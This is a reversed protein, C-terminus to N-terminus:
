RPPLVFSLPAQRLRQWLAARLVRKDGVSVGRARMAMRLSLWFSVGLNLAGILFIGAACAGLTAAPVADWGLSTVAATWQATSLTVHRVDLPLGLFGLVAPMVGLMLGLSANSALGNVHRRGWQAWRQARARGLRAVIGPHTAIAGQLEQFCFANEAWGGVLSSAFLLVGTFAAYLPALGLATVSDLVHHAAGEGILPRGLVWWCVGQLAITAPVVLGLNGLVAAVQSRTLAAIEDVFADSAARSGHGHSDQVQALRSTLAPATMAPQKTALTWGMLYIGLFSVAYMLGVAVGSWFPALALALIAFKAVATFAVVVGGGGAQRLLSRYEGRDRAVYHEGTVAHREAFKRALLRRHEALCNRLSRQRRVAEALQSLMLALDQAPRNSLVLGLLTELRDLRLHIQDLDQLLAISVGHLRLHEKAQDAAERCLQIVARLHNAAQRRGPGDIRPLALLGDLAEPLREFAGRGAAGSPMRARLAPSLAMACLAQALWRLAQVWPQRLDTGPAVGETVLAAVRALSADDIQSLWSLNTGSRVALAFVAALAPTDASGPLCRERLWGGLVDGLGQRSRLGSDAFLGAADGELWLRRLLLGVQARLEPQRHLVQLLYRLRLVPTPTEEHRRPREDRSLWELARVLWLNREAWGGHPPLGSVLEPVQWRGHPERALGPSRSAPAAATDHRAQRLATKLAPDFM